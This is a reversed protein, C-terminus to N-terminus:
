GFGFCWGFGLRLCGFGLFGSSLFGFGWFEGGAAFGPTDCQGDENWEASANDNGEEGAVGHEFEAGEDLGWESWWGPKEWDSPGNKVGKHTKSAIENPFFAVFGFIGFVGFDGFGDVGGEGEVADLKDEVKNPGWKEKSETPEPKGKSPKEDHPEDNRGFRM